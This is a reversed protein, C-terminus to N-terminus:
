SLIPNSSRETAPMSSIVWFRASPSAHPNPPPEQILKGIFQAGSAGPDSGTNIPLGIPSPSLTSSHIGINEANVPIGIYPGHPHKAIGATHGIDGIHYVLVHEVLVNLAQHYRPVFSALLKRRIKTVGVRVRPIPVAIQRHHGALVTPLVGHTHSEGSTWHPFQITMAFGIFTHLHSPDEPSPSTLPTEPSPVM